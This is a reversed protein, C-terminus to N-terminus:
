PDEVLNRIAPIAECPILTALCVAKDKVHGVTHLKEYSAAPKIFQNLHEKPYKRNNEYQNILKKAIADKLEKSLEHWSFAPGDVAAKLEAYSPDLSHKLEELMYKPMVVRVMQRLFRYTHSGITVTDYCDLKVEPIVVVAEHVPQELSVIYIPPPLREYINTLHVKPREEQKKSVKYMVPSLIMSVTRNPPKVRKDYVM